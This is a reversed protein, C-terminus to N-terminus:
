TSIRSILFFGCTLAELSRRKIVSWRLHKHSDLEHFPVMADFIPTTMHVKLRSIEKSAHKTVEDFHLSKEVLLYTNYDPVTKFRDSGAKLVKLATFPSLHRSKQSGWSSDRSRYDGLTETEASIGRSHQM